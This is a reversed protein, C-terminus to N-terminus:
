FRFGAPSLHATAAAKDHRDVALYLILATGLGAAGVGLGIASATYKARLPALQADSCTGGQGCLAYLDAHEPVALAQFVGFVGLGAVGVAGAIWTAAGPGNGAPKPPPAAIPKSAFPTAPRALVIEVLRRQEGEAVVLPLDRPAFGDAEVHLTTAGPDLDIATGSPKDLLLKKDKFVRFTTVDHHADDTVRVVVSPMRKRLQDLFGLCDDRVLKPCEKKACKSFLERSEVFQGKDRVRQGTEAADACASADDAFAPRAPLAVFAVLTVLRASRIV